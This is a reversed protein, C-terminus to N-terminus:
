RLDQIHRANFLTIMNLTAMGALALILLFCFTIHLGSNVSFLGGALRVIELLVLGAAAFSAILAMTRGWKKRVLLGIGAPIALGGVAIGLFGNIIQMFGVFKLQGTSPFGLPNRGGIRIGFDRALFDLEREMRNVASMINFGDIMITLGLALVVGGVAITTIAASLLLPNTRSRPGRSADRDPGRGRDYEEDRELDDRDDPRPRRRGRDYDDDYDDGRSM